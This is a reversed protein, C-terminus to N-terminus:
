FDKIDVLETDTSYPPYYKNDIFSDSFEVRLFKRKDHCSKNVSKDIKKVVHKIDEDSSSLNNALRDYKKCLKIPKKTRMKEKREPPKQPTDIPQSSNSPKGIPKLRVDDRDPRGCYAVDENTPNYTERRYGHGYQPFGQSSLPADRLRAFNYRM